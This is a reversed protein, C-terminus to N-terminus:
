FWATLSFFGSQGRGMVPKIAGMRMGAMFDDMNVGGLPLEYAKNLLNNVGGSAEFAGKRYSAHLNFLAYGPTHQEHRRPDVHNKRDM